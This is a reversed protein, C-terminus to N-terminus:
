ISDTVVKTNKVNSSAYVIGIMLVWYYRIHPHLLRFEFFSWILLITVLGLSFIAYKQLVCSKKYAMVIRLILMVFIGVFMVFGVLGFRVLIELYTNHLHAMWVKGGKFDPHRLFELGSERILSKTASTGWGFIPREKFMKLGFLFINYRYDVSTDPSVNSMLEGHEFEDNVISTLSRMEEFLRNHINKTNIVVFVSFGFVILCSVSILRKLSITAKMYSCFFVMAVIPLVIIAALWSARSRTFVLLQAFLLSLFGWVIYSFFIIKKVSFFRIVDPAFSILALLATDCYLAFSTIKVHFGTRLGSWIESLRLIDHSTFVGVLLGLFMLILIKDIRKLDISILYSVCLFLFVRLWDLIGSFEYSSFVYFEYLEFFSRLIIYIAFLLLWYFAIDRKMSRWFSVDSFCCLMMICLFLEALSNSLLSFFAFSYLSFLQITQRSFAKKHCFLNQM